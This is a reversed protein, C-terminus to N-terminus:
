LFNFKGGVTVSVYSIDNSFFRGKITILQNGMQSGENPSVTSVDVFCIYVSILLTITYRPSNYENQCYLVKVLVKRTIHILKLISDSTGFVKSACSFAEQLLFTFDSHPWFVTCHIM